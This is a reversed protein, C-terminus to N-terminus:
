LSCKFFNTLESVKIGSISQDYIIQLYYRFPQANNKQLKKQQVKGCRYEGLKEKIQKSCQNPLEM